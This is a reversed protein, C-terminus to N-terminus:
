ELNNYFNLFEDLSRILWYYGGAKEIKLQYSKQDVSQRDRMKVEIKVAKGRIVASIDSTGKEGSTPLWKVSGIRRSDGLVDTIIQTNDQPRGTCNIREAQWGSFRLFDIIARTLQNASKDSYPKIYRAGEPLTPHRRRSDALALERLEKLSDSQM